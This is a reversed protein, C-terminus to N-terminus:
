QNRFVRPATGLRAGGRERWMESKGFKPTHTMHLGERPPGKFFIPFGPAGAASCQRAVAWDLSDRRLPCPIPHGPTASCQMKQPTNATRTGKQPM